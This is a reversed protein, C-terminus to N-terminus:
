ASRGEGLDRVLMRALHNTGDWLIGAEEAREAEDEIHLLSPAFFRRFLRRRLHDFKAQAIADRVPRQREQRRFWSPPREPIEHGFVWLLEAAAVRMDAIGRALAYLHVADGGRGCGFCTWGRGNDAYVTFSPSGDDHDPLPCRATFTQGRRSLPGGVLREALELVTVAEKAADIPKAYSVGRAPDVSAPQRAETYVEVLVGKPHNDEARGGGCLPAKGEDGIM